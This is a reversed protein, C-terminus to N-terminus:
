RSLVSLSIRSWGTALEDPIIYATVHDTADALPEDILKTGFLKDCPAASEM